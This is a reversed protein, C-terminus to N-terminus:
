AEQPLLAQIKCFVLVLLDAVIFSNGEIEKADINVTFGLDLLRRKLRWVIDRLDYEGNAGLDANLRCSLWIDGENEIGLSEALVPRIVLEMLQLRTILM